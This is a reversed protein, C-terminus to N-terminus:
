VIAMWPHMMHPLILLQGALHWRTVQCRQVGICCDIGDGHLTSKWGICVIVVNNRKGLTMVEGRSVLFCCVDHHCGQVCIALRWLRQWADKPVFEAVITLPFHDRWGLRHFHCCCCGGLCACVQHWTREFCLHNLLVPALKLM